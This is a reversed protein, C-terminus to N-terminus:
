AVAAENQFWIGAFRRAEPTGYVTLCHPMLGATFARNNEHQITDPDTEPGWWMHRAFWPRNGKQEFLATFSAHEATGTASILVPVYVAATLDDLRAQYGSASLGHVAVWAPGPEQIWLAAYRADASVGSVTLSISHFGRSSLHDVRAQHSHATM